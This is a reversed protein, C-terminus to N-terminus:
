LTMCADCSFNCCQIPICTTYAYCVVICHTMCMRVVYPYNKKLHVRLLYESSLNDFPYPIYPCNQNVNIDENLRLIAEHTKSVAHSHVVKTMQLVDAMASQSLHHKEKLKLLWSAAVEKSFCSTVNAGSGGPINSHTGSPSSQSVDSQTLPLTSDSLLPQVFNTTSGLLNHQILSATSDPLDSRELDPTSEPVGSLGSLSAQSAPTKSTCAEPPARKRKGKLYETLHENRVHWYWVGPSSLLEQCNEV